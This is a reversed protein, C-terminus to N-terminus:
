GAKEPVDEADEGRFGDDAKPGIPHMRILDVATGIDWARIIGSNLVALDNSDKLRYIKGDPARFINNGNIDAQTVENPQIEKEKEKVGVLEPSFGSIVGAVKFVYQNHNELDRYVVPSGSFGPNNYGDLLIENMHKDPQSNFLSVTAKKIVGFVDPLTAYIKAIGFPYGVFYADQGIVMGSSTPELSYNITLQKPPIMVAIDCPDECKFVRVKLPSLGNKKRIQITSEQENALSQVIHKATILYQRGDVEITFATGSKTGVVILLTRRLVNSTIQAYADPVGIAATVIISIAIVLSRIMEDVV